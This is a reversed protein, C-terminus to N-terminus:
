TRTAQEIDRCLLSKAKSIIGIAEGIALSTDTSAGDLLGKTELVEHLATRLKGHVERLRDVGM